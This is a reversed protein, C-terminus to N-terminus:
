CARRDSHINPLAMQWKGIGWGQVVDKNKRFSPLLVNGMNLCDKLTEELVGKKNLSFLTLEM